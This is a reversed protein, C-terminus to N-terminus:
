LCRLQLAQPVWANLCARLLRARLTRLCRSELEYNPSARQANNTIGVPRRAERGGTRAPERALSICAGHLSADRAFLLRLM